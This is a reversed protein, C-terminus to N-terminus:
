RSPSRPVRFIGAETVVLEVPVDHDEHPVQPLLEDAYVLACITGRSSPAGGQESRLPSSPPSTGGAQAHTLARDFYGGGRGLRWGAHDVALAPAIVLGAGAIADVELRPGDPEPVGLASRTVHTDPDFRVWELSGEASAVPVIVETGRALLGDILPGTGPESAMSLYVAVTPVQAFAATALHAAIAAAAADREDQSRMARRRLISERLAAKAVGGAAPEQM